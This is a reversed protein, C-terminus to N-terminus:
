AHAQSSAQAQGWFLVDDVYVAMICADDPSLWLGKQNAIPQWGHKLLQSRLHAGAHPHGYLVRILRVVPERMSRARQPFLHM